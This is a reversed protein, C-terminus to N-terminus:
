AAAAHNSHVYRPQLLSVEQPPDGSGAPWAPHGQWVALGTVGALFQLDNDTHEQYLQTLAEGEKANDTIHDEEACDLQSIVVM